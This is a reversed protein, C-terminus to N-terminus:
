REVRGLIGTDTEVQEEGLVLIPRGGNGQAGEEASMATFNGRAPTGVGEDGVLAAPAVDTPVVEGSLLWGLCSPHGTLHQTLGAQEPRSVRGLVFFGMRDAMEWVRRSEEGVTTVLLNYGKERLALAEVETCGSVEKGRLRIPKSNLRLGRPGLGVTRLGHRVPVVECRIGDQWLEIPGTYLHPTEPEWLSAEPIIAKLTIAPRSTPMLIRRLHYAVEVTAAFRCRPGMLRGRVETAGDLREPEVTVHVEVETPVLSRDRLSVHLIRNSM